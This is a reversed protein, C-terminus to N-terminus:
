RFFVLNRGRYESIGGIVSGARRGQRILERAAMMSSSGHECYCIALKEHPLADASVGEEWPMSVAGRIHSKEYEGRSRVDVLVVDTRNALDDLEGASFLRIQM